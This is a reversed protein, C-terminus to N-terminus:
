QVYSQRRTAIQKYTEILSNLDMSDFRVEGAIHIPVLQGTKILWEVKSGDLQLLAPLDTQAYLRREPKSTM